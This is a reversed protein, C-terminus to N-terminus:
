NLFCYHYKGLKVPISLVNFNKSQKDFEFENTYYATQNCLLDITKYVAFEISFDFKGSIKKTTFVKIPIKSNKNFLKINFDKIVNNYDSRNRFIDSYKFELERKSNPLFKIFDYVIQHNGLIAEESTAVNDSYKTFVYPIIPLMSLKYQKSCFDIRHLYKSGLFQQQLYSSFVFLTDDTTNIITVTIATTGEMYTAYFSNTQYNALSSIKDAEKCSCYEGRRIQASGVFTFFFLLVLIYKM